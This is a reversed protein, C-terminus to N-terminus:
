FASKRIAQDFLRFLIIYPQNRKIFHIFVSSYEFISLGYLFNPCFSAAENFAFPKKKSRFGQLKKQPSPKSPVQPDMKVAIGNKM